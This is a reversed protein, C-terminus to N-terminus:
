LTNDVETLKNRKWNALTLIKKLSQACIELVLALQRQLQIHHSGVHTCREKVPCLLNGLFALDEVNPPLRRETSGTAQTLLRNRVSVLYHDSRPAGYLCPNRRKNGATKQAQFLAKCM